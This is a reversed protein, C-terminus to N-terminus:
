GPGPRGDVWATMAEGLHVFFPFAATAYDYTDAGVTGSSNTYISATLAYWKGSQRDMVVANELSFGLAQGVKNIVRVRDRPWVRAAGPLLYKAFHDPYAAPDFWPNESERPTQAMAHILFGRDDAHLGLDVGHAPHDPLALALMLRHLDLLGVRNKLAFDMPGEVLRGDIVHRDGILLGPQDNAPLGLDSVREPVSLVGRRALFDVRATRLNEAITRHTSLRHRHRFSGLGAAWIMEHLERHGVLEYLRNHAPNDSVLALKRIERGVCLVGGDASSPDRTELTQGDFLPWVQMPTGLDPECSNRREALARLTRMAAVAAFTKVTSAPYVYEADVRFGRTVLNEGEPVTLLIQVCSRAPDDLLRGFREPKQGLLRPISGDDALKLAMAALM